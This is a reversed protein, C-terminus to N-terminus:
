RLPDYGGKNFPNCRLIRWVGLYLGKFIGYKELAELTYQSCTPNFRCASHTPSPLKQYFKILGILLRKM